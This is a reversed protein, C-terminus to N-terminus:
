YLRLNLVYLAQADDRDKMLSTKKMAYNHPNTKFREKERVIQFINENLIIYIVKHKLIIFNFVQEVDEEKFQYALAAKVDRVKMELEALTPLPIRNM